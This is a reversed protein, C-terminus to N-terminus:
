ASSADRKGSGVEAETETVCLGGRGEGEGAVGGAQRPVCMDRMAESVTPAPRMEPRSQRSANGCHSDHAYNAKGSAVHWKGCVARAKNCIRFQLCSNFSKM